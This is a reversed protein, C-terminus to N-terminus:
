RPVETVLAGSLALAWPGHGARALGDAVTDGASAEGSRVLAGAAVLRAGAGLALTGELVADADVRLTADGSLLLCARVTGSVHVDGRAAVITLLQGDADPGLDRLDLAPADVVLVARGARPGSLSLPRESRVRFAGHLARTGASWDRFLAGDPRLEATLREEFWAPALRPRCPEIVQAFASQSRDWPRLERSFSWLRLLAHNLAAAEAYAAEELGPVGAAELRARAARVRELDSALHRALDLCSLDVRRASATIACAGGPLLPVRAEAAGPEPFSELLAVLRALADGTAVARARALRTRFTALEDLVQARLSRARALDTVRELEEVYLGVQDFPRPPGALVLKLERWETRERTVHHGGSVVDARGWLRLWGVREDGLGTALPEVRELRAVWALDALQGLPREPAGPAARLFLAPRPAGIQALDTVEVPRQGASLVRARLPRYAPDAPDGAASQLRAAVQAFTARLAADAHEGAALLAVQGQWSGALARRAMLAIGAAGLLVLVLALTAVGRRPHHPRM